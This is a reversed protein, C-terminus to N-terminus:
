KMFIFVFHITHSKKMILSVCLLLLTSNCYSYYSTSVFKSRAAYGYGCGVSQEYSIQMQRICIKATETVDRATKSGLLPTVAAM